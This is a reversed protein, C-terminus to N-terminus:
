ILEGAVEFDVGLPTIILDFEIEQLAAVIKLFIRAKYKGQQVDDPLNIVYQTSDRAFQDGEYRWGNKHLARVKVLDELEPKVKLYIKMWNTPENGQGIFRELFPKLTKKLGILFFRVNLNQLDSNTKLATCNHWFMKKGSRVVALNIGRNSLLNADTYRGASGFNNVVGLVNAILGTEEGEIARWYGHKKETNCIAAIYDGVEAIEEEFSTIPHLDVLGGAIFTAYSTDIGTAERDAVLLDATNAANDLHQVFVLDKRTDAYDAGGLAVEEDFYGLTSLVRSDDYNDFANFGLLSSDDGIYDNDTISAGNDGGIFKYTGNRPRLQGTLASLDQYTFDLFASYRKADNLYTSASTTPTGNIKLNQYSESIATELSHTIAINFYDADGNSADSITFILNNYDEGEYKPALSFLNAGNSDVIMTENTITLTPQSAGGTVSISAITLASASNKYFIIQRDDSTTATGPNVIEAHDVDAHALIAARLLELTNDSSTAYNVTSIAVGNINFVIANSAVFAASIKLFCYPNLAAKAADLSDSDTIDTYHAIRNVRLIAGKDLARKCQRPFDNGDILGGFMRNFQPWSRILDSPKNIPGRLTEGIVFAIGTAPKVLGPTLDVENFDVIPSNPM